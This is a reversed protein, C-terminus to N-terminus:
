GAREPQKVGAAVAVLARERGLLHRPRVAPRGVIGVAGQPTELHSIRAIVADSCEHVIGAAAQLRAVLDRGRPADGLGPAIAVERLPLGADLAEHLLRIGDAIMSSSDEGAGVARFRRVIPNRTSTVRPLASM